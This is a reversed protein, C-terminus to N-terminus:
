RHLVIPNTESPNAKKKKRPEIITNGIARYSTCERYKRSLLMQYPNEPNVASTKDHTNNVTAIIEKM